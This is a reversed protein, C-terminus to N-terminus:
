NVPKSLEETNQVSPPKLTLGRRHDPVQSRAMRSRAHSGKNNVHLIMWVDWMETICWIFAHLWESHSAARWVSRVICRYMATVTHPRTLVHSYTLSLADESIISVRIKNKNRYEEAASHCYAERIRYVCCLPVNGSFKWKTPHHPWSSASTLTYLLPSLALSSVDSLQSAILIMQETLRM